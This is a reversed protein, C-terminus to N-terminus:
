ARVNLAMQEKFKTLVSTTMAGGFSAGFRRALRELMPRHSTYNVVSDQKFIHHTVYDVDAFDDILGLTKAKVGTWVLGTFLDPDKSLRKGRGAKVRDIFVQHLTALMQHVHAEQRSSVPTFPDLFGKNSGATFLRRTAGVKKLTDVFGFGNMLVGISGVLSSPNAFIKDAAAAVYYAGSACVDTCVAYVKVKPHAHRFRMIHTYMEDSQVPSGGPSNIRLVIGEVHTNEFAKKLSANVRLASAPGGAMIPGSLNIIAIHPKSLRPDPQDAEFIAGLFLFFLFAFIFKFLIGWRRRRRQEVMSANLIEKITHQEWTESADSM